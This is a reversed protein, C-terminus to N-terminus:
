HILFLGTLRFLRTLAEEVSGEPCIGLFLSRPPRQSARTPGEAENDLSYVTYIIAAAVLLVAISVKKM